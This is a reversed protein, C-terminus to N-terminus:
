KTNHITIDKMAKALGELDHNFELKFSDWDKERNTEYADVKAKLAHNQAEIADIQDAYAKDLKKGAKKM